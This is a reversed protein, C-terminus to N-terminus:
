RANRQALCHVIIFSDGLVGVTHQFQRQRLFSHCVGLPQGILQTLGAATASRQVPLPFRRTLLGTAKKKTLYFLHIRVNVGVKRLIKRQNRGSENAASKWEKVTGACAV